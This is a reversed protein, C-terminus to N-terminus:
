PAMIQPTGCNPPVCDPLKIKAAQGEPAPGPPPQVVGTRPSPESPGDMLTPEDQLTTANPPNLGKLTQASAAGALGCAMLGALLWTLSTRKM